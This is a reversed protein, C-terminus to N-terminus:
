ILNRAPANEELEDRVNRTPSLVIERFPVRLNHKTENVTNYNTGIYIKRSAPLKIEDSTRKKIEINEIMTKRGEDTNDADPKLTINRARFM